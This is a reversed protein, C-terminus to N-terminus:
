DRPARIRQLRLMQVATAPKLSEFSTLSQELAHASVGGAGARMQLMAKTTRWSLDIARALILLPEARKHMMADEVRAIPLDCLLALAAVVDEFEGARGLDALLEQDLSGRAHLTAVRAVAASYDRAVEASQARVRHAIEAVVKRIHERAQPDDAELRARVNDSAKALLQLFLHRPLGARAGVALALGDDGEAREVLCSYGYGSFRAGDNRAVTCLVDLDGRAVIVDTVAASLAGRQSIALLHDQSKTKAGEVLTAEDLRECRTLVTGAVAIEDDLALKRMLVPPANPIDVLRRALQIRASMEIGAELRGIVEDFLAIQEASYTAAGLVFLDLVQGLAEGRRGAPQAAISQEIGSGLRAQETTM